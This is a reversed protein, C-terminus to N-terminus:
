FLKSSNLRRLPPREEVTDSNGEVKVTAFIGKNSGSQVYVAHLDVGTVSFSTPVKQKMNFSNRTIHFDVAQHLIQSFGSSVAEKANDQCHAYL